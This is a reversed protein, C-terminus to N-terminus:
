SLSKVVFKAWFVAENLMLSVKTWSQKDFEAGMNTDFHVGAPLASIV